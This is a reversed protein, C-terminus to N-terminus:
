FNTMWWRILWKTRSRQRWKWCKSWMGRSWQIAFRAKTWVMRAIEERMKYFNSLQNRERENGWEVTILLRCYLWLDKWFALGIRDKRWSFHNLPEGDWAPFFVVKVHYIIHKSCVWLKRTHTLAPSLLASKSLTQSIVSLERTRPSEPTWGVHSAAHLGWQTANMAYRRCMHLEASRLRIVWTFSYHFKNDVVLLKAIFEEM